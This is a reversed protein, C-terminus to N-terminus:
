LPMPQMGTTHYLARSVVPVSYNYLAALSDSDGVHALQMSWGNTVDFTVFAYQLAIRCIGHIETSTQGPLANFAKM